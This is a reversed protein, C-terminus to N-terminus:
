EIEGRGIGEKPTGYYVGVMDLGVCDVEGDGKGRPWYKGFPFLVSGGSGLIIRSNTVFEVVHHSHPIM